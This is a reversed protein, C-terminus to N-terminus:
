QTRRLRIKVLVNGLGRGQLTQFHVSLLPVWTVRRYEATLKVPVRRRLRVLTSLSPQGHELGRLVLHPFSGQVGKLRFRKNIM